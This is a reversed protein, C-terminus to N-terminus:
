FVRNITLFLFNFGLSNLSSSLTDTQLSVFWPMSMTVIMTVMLTIMHCCVLLEVVTGHAECIGRRQSLM